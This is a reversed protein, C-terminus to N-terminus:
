RESTSQPRAASLGSTIISGSSADRIFADYFDRANQDIRTSNTGDYSTMGELTRRTVALDRAKSALSVAAEGFGGFRLAGKKMFNVLKTFTGSPNTTGSMPITADGIVRQLKMLQNFDPEDLIARLRDVGFKRIATNLRAGSITSSQVNTAQQFLDGIAQAQIGRWAQEAGPTGGSLLLGRVKRINTIAGSGSGLTRAIVREPLMTFTQRTGKRIALIDDVVDKSKFTEVQRAHARRAAQYAEPINAADTEAAAVFAEEVADDIHSKIGQSIGTPDLDYLKNVRQRLDEANAVSLQKVPGRFSVSSGDDLAVRTIGAENIPDAQGILGYRAMEQTLPRKVAEPVAEDILVDVIANHLEDTQLTLADGGAEEAARYLASVGDRGRDRLDSIADRVSQGRDAPTAETDGFRTRFRDVADTIEQAREDRFNRAINGERTAAVYLSQEDNQVAFDREAEGRTLRVGESRAEDFASTERYPSTPSTQPTEPQAPPIREGIADAIAATREELRPVPRTDEPARDIMAQTTPIPERPRNRAAERGAQSSRRPTPGNSERVRTYTEAVVDQPLGARQALERGNENLTGNQNLVSEPPTAEMVSALRPSIRGAGARLGRGASVAGVGGGLGGVLAAITQMVLGGGMQGTAEGSLGGTAGAVTDVAPSASLATGVAGTAGKAGAFLGGVGASALGGTAGEVGANVLRETDTTSADLGIWDAASNAADRFPTTSLGQEGPLANILGNVPGAVMDVLGGAGTMVGRVGQGLSDGATKVPAAEVEGSPGMVVRIDGKGGRDRYALAEDLGALQSTNGGATQVYTEIDAKSAGSKILGSVGATIDVPAAAYESWPGDTEQYELWPEGAM